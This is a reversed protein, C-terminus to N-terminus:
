DGGITCESGTFQMTLENHPLGSASGLYVKSKGDYNATIIDPYTDKNVDAVTVDTTMTPPVAEIEVPM